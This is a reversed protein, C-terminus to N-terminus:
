SAFLLGAVELVGREDRDGGTGVRPGLSEVDDDLAGRDADGVVVLQLSERVGVFGLVAADPVEVDAVACEAGVAVVRSVHEADFRGLGQGEGLLRV